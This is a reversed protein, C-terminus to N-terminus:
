HGKKGRQARRRAAWGDKVIQQTREVALADAPVDKTVVSGSGIYAGAGITIPAVMSVNTGVFAGDGIRTEHKDFGDYNCTIAGAGINVDEGITADGIYALHNAKSGRGLRSKKVEVFNGVKAGAGIVAKPRLHAFPGLEVGEEVEAERLVCYPHLRVRDALRSSAIQCGAGIVSGAGITTTGELLVNPYLTTDPGITVTDDVYTTSPDLVTVGEAM